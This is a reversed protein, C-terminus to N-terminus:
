RMKAVLLPTSVCLMNDVLLSDFLKINQIPFYLIVSPIHIDEVACRRHQKIAFASLPM